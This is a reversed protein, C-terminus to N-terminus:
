YESKNREIRDQLVKIVQMSALSQGKNGSKVGNQLIYLLEEDERKFVEKEKELYNVTLAEIDTDDLNFYDPNISEREMLKRKLKCNIYSRRELESFLWDAFEKAYKCDHEDILKDIVSQRTM